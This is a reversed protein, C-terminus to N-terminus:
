ILGHTLNHTSNCLRDVFSNSECQIGNVTYELAAGFLFFKSTFELGEIISKKHLFDPVCNIVSATTMGMMSYTFNHYHKEFEPNDSSTTLYKLAMIGAWSSVLAIGGYRLLRVPRYFTWDLCKQACDRDKDSVPHEARKPATDKKGETSKETTPSKGRLWSWLGM